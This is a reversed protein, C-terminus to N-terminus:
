DALGVSWTALHETNCMEMYVCEPGEKSFVLPFHKEGTEWSLSGKLLSNFEM